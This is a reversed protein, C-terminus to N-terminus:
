HLYYQCLGARQDDQMHLMLTPESCAKTHASHLEWYSVLIFAVTDLCMWNKVAELENGFYKFTIYKKINGANEKLSLMDIMPM